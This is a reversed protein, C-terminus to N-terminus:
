RITCRTWTKLDGGVSLMPKGTKEQSFKHANKDRKKQRFTERGAALRIVVILLLTFKQIVVIYWHPGTAM